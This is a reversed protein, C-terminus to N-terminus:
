VKYEFLPLPIKQVCYAYLREISQQLPEDSTEITLNPSIPAEYINTASFGILNGLEGNRALAYLGKTDRKELVSLRTKVYIEHFGDGLLQQAHIRSETYPSIVPM